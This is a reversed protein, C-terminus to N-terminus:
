GVIRKRLFESWSNWGSRYNLEHKREGQGKATSRGRSAGSIGARDDILDM